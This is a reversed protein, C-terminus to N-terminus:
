RLPRLLGRTRRLRRAAPVSRHAHLSIPEDLTEVQDVARGRFRERLREYSEDSLRLAIAQGGSFGVEVRKQEAM